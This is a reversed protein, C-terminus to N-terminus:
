KAAKRAAAQKRMRAPAGAKSHYVNSLNGRGDNFKMKDDGLETRRGGPRGAAALTESVNNENPKSFVSAGGAMMEAERRADEIPQTGKFQASAASHVATPASGQGGAETSPPVEGIKTESPRRVYNIDGYQVPTNDAAYGHIKDTMDSIHQRQERQNQLHFVGRVAEARVHAIAAVHSDFTKSIKTGGKILLGGIGAGVNSM